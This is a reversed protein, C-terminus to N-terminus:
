PSRLASLRSYSSLARLIRSAARRLDFSRLFSSVGPILLVHMLSLAAALLPVDASFPPTALPRVRLVAVLTDVAAVLQGAPETGGAAVVAVLTDALVIGVAAIKDAPAIGVAAALM